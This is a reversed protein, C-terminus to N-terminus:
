RRSLGELLRLRLVKRNTITLRAISYRRRTRIGELLPILTLITDDEYYTTKNTQDAFGTLTENVNAPPTQLYDTYDSGRRPPQLGVTFRILYDRGATVTQLDGSSRTFRDIADATDQMGLALVFGILVGFIIKRTNLTNM